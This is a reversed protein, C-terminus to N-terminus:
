LWRAVAVGAAAAAVALLNNMAFNGAAAWLHRQEILGATEFAYSSFTTYAGCFGIVVLLRYSPDALVRETTWVLFAGVLFSGTVNVALTGWPLSASLHKAVLVNVLYRANAGLFGGAGILLFEKMGEERLVFFEWWRKGAPTMLRSALRNEASEM